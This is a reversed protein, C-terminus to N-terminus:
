EGELETEAPSVAPRRKTDEPPLDLKVLGDRDWPAGELWDPRTARLGGSAGGVFRRAGCHRCQQYAGGGDDHARVWDHSHPGIPKIHSGRNDLDTIM